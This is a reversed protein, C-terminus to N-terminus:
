RRFKRRSVFSVFIGAICVAALLVFPLNQILIGTPTISGDDYTNTVTTSNANEGVLKNSITVDNGKEGNQTSNTGNEVIAASPTYNETGTETVSYKTGAPLDTFVLKQGDTLEVIEPVGPKFTYEKKGVKGTYETDNATAAKQITITFTFGKTKDGYNGSVIKAIELSNGEGDHGKKTYTNTFNIGDSVKEGNKAIKVDSVEPGNEGNTVYVRLTYSSKDYKMGYGQDDAGNETITYEYVGAHPFTVGDLINGSTKSITVKGNEAAKKDDSSYPIDTVNLSPADPTKPSAKFTFTKDSTTIGEAMELNKTITATTQNGEASVTKATGTGALLSVAMVGALLTGILKKKMRMERGGTTM